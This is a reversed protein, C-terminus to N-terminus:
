FLKGGGRDNIGVTQQTIQTKRVPSSFFSFISVDSAYQASFLTILHFLPFFFFALLKIFLWFPMMNYWSIGLAFFPM